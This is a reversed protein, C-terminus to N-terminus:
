PLQRGIAQELLWLSNQFDARAQNYAQEALNATRQADLLEFLSTAGEKFSFASIERLKRVQQLNEDTYLAMAKRAALYAQWAKEVDIVAQTRAQQYQAEAARQLATAQVIGAKQNNYLFLPFQAVVGLSSDSGVRQYEYGVSIDRHRQAEALRTGSEAARATYQAVQVDPREQLALRKLEDLTSVVPVPRLDGEVELKQGSPDNLVNQIDRTAQEYAARAQLEAQQFPLKGSKVRYLEMLPLDGASVRTETLSETKEYQKLTEAALRYNDRALLAASFALRLQFLQTRVADGVGAQSANLQADAQQVRTERKGGREIVKNFQFTWVPNAGANSDTTVFRPLSMLDMGSPQAFPIQEAGLQIVPNPKYGAITKAAKSAEVMRRSSTLALNRELLLKEAVELSLASPLSQASLEVSTFVILGVCAVIRVFM